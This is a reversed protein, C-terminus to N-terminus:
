LVLPKVKIRYSNVQHVNAYAYEPERVEQNVVKLHVQEELYCSSFYSMVACSVCYCSM